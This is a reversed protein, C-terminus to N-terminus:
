FQYLLSYIVTGQVSGEVQLVASPNRWEATTFVSPGVKLLEDDCQLSFEIDLWKTYKEGVGLHPKM